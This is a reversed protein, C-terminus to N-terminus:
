REYLNFITLDNKYIFYFIGFNNWKKRYISFLWFISNIKSSSVSSNYVSYISLPKDDLYIMEKSLRPILENWFVFDEHNISKFRIDKKLLDRKFCVTLLPIPNYFVLTLNINFLVLPNRM